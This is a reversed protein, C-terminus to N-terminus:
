STPESSPHVEIDTIDVFGIRQESLEFKEEESVWRGPDEPSTKILRLGAEINSSETAPAALTVQFSAALAVIATSFLM